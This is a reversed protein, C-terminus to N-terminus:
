SQILSGAVKKLDPHLEDHAVTFTGNEKSLTSPSCFNRRLVPSRALSIASSCRTISNIM